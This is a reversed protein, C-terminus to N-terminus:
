NVKKHRQARLIYRNKYSCIALVAAEMKAITNGTSISDEDDEDEDDGDDKDGSQRLPKKNRWGAGWQKDVLPLRFKRLILQLHSNYPWPTIISPTDCQISYKHSSFM